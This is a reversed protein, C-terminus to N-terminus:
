IHAVWAKNKYPCFYEIWILETIEVYIYGVEESAMKKAM